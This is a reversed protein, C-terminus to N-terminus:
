KILYVKRDEISWYGSSKGSLAATLYYIRSGIIVTGEYRYMKDEGEKLTFLDNPKLESFRKKM